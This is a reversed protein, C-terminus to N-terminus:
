AIMCLPCCLTHTVRSLGLSKLVISSASSKKPLTSSGMDSDDRLPKGRQADVHVSLSGDALVTQDLHEGLEALLLIHEVDVDDHCRGRQIM